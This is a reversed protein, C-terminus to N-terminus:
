LLLAAVLVIPFFIQTSASGGSNDDENGKEPEAFTIRGELTSKIPSFLKTAEVTIEIDIGLRKRTLQIEPDRKVPNYDDVM